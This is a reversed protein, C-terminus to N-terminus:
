HYFARLKDKTPKTIYGTKTLEVNGTLIDTIPLTEIWAVTKRGDRYNYVKWKSSWTGDFWKITAQDKEVKLLQGLQPRENYKVCCLAVM